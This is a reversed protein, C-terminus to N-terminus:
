PSRCREKPDASVAARLVRLIGGAEEVDETGEPLSDSTRDGAVARPFGVIERM